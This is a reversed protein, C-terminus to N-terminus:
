MRPKNKGFAAQAPTDMQEALVALAYAPGCRALKPDLLESLFIVQTADPVSQRLLFDGQGSTIILTDDGFEHQKRVAAIADGLLESQEFSVFEAVALGDHLNFETEDACVCRGLRAIAHAATAPRGDSTNSDEPRDAVAGTVLHVDLTTAFVERAIPCEQDRYPVTSAIACVPTREVGMYILESALLRETDTFGKSVIQSDVIPIIDCTTSGIDVLIANEGGAFRAAFSALAHWNSAAALHHKRRAEEPTVFTGDLLYISVERDGASTALANIIADVGERKTAFCDALEGTMTAVIAEASPAHRILKELERALGDPHKWLPFPSTATYGDATAVKLNAGGVDFALRTKSM